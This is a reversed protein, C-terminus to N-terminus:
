RSPRFRKRAARVACRASPRSFSRGDLRKRSPLQLAPPLVATTSSSEQRQPLSVVFPASSRDGSERRRHEEHIRDFAGRRPLDRRQAHRYSRSGGALVGGGRAARSVVSIETARCCAASGPPLAVRSFCGARESLSGSSQMEKKLRVVDEPANAQAISSRTRPCSAWADATMAREVRGLKSIPPRNVVSAEFVALTSTVAVLDRIIEQVPVSDIEVRKAFDDAVEGV